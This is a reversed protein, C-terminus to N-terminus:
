STKKKISIGILAFVGAIALFLPSAFAAPLGHFDFMASRGFRFPIPVNEAIWAMSRPPGFLNGFGYAIWEFVAPIAELAGIVGTVWACAYFPRAALANSRAAAAANAEEEIRKREAAARAPATRKEEAAHAEEQARRREAAARQAARVKNWYDSGIDGRCLPCRSADSKLSFYKCHPCECDGPNARKYDSERTARVTEEIGEATLNLLEQHREEAACRPCDRSKYDLSHRGCYSMPQGLTKFLCETADAPSGGANTLQATPKGFSEIKNEHRIAKKKPVSANM